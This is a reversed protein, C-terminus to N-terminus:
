MTTSVITLAKTSSADGAQLGAARLICIAGLVAFAYSALPRIPSMPPGRKRAHDPMGSSPTPTSSPAKAAPANTTGRTPGPASASSVPSAHASVSSAPLPLRRRSSISPQPGTDAPSSFPHKARARCGTRFRWPGSSIPPRALRSAPWHMPGRRGGRLASRTSRGRGQRVNRPTRRSQGSM